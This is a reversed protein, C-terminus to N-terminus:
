RGAAVLIEQLQALHEEAHGLVFREAIRAAPMEGLRPHLGTKGRDVDTLKPLREMWSWLGADVRAFLTRLPLTRDRDIVGIRLADGAVRGFPVPAIGDGDVVRELEGLWFPLLESLHALVERPGWSVEPGTDSMEALPWPEGDAVRSRLAAYDARADALRDLESPLRNTATTTM